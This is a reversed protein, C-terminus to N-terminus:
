SDLTKKEVATSFLSGREAFGPGILGRGLCENILMLRNQLLQDFQRRVIIGHMERHLESPEGGFEGMQFRHAGTTPQKRDLCIECPMSPSYLPLVPRDVCQEPAGKSEAGFRGRQTVKGGESQIRLCRIFKASGDRLIRETFFM